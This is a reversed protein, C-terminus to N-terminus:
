NLVKQIKSALISMLKDFSDSFSQVGQDLLQNTVRDISIGVESLSHILEESEDVSKVLTDEVVGKDMFTALTDVPMTNVTDRGILSEVYLLESYEPNKTSTSAWLPRQVKSGKEKLLHFKGSYFDKAFDRYALKANAVAARGGLHKLEDGGLGKLLTDVATDLRSVFFSAVSSVTSPNGGSKVLDELGSLYSQRVISYAELSFILTVNVNINESILQSIAPMGENTAPVKMMVNPRDLTLFLRRAESITNETDHAFHPNVELSVYGDVGETQDYVPRLLDAVSRIDEVVLAEYIEDVSKGQNVLEYISKDYDDSQGIAKEFITPNSTLGTVGFDILRKLHGSQIMDRSISDCWISQGLNGISAASSSM